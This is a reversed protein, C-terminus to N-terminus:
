SEASSMAAQSWVCGCTALTRNGASGSSGPWSGPLFLEISRWPREGDFKLGAGLGGESREDISQSHETETGAPAAELTEDHRRDRVVESARRHEGVITPKHPEVDPEFVGVVELGIEGLCEGVQCGRRVSQGGFRRFTDLRDM